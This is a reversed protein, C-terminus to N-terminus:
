LFERLRKARISGILDPISDDTPEGQYVWIGLEKALMAQPRIPRLIIQDGESELQLVAGPGLQMRERLTKPLLLRGAKDLTIKTVM